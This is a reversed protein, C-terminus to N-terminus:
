GLPLSEEWRDRTHFSASSVYLRSDILFNWVQFFVHAADAAAADQDGYVYQKQVPNHVAVDQHYYPYDDREGVFFFGPRDRHIRRGDTELLIDNPLDIVFFREWFAFQIFKSQGRPGSSGDAEGQNAADGDDFSSASLELSGSVTRALERQAQKAAALVPASRDGRRPEEHFVIFCDSSIRRRREEMKRLYDEFLRTRRALAEHFPDM